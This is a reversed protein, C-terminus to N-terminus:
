KSMSKEFMRDIKTYCKGVSHLASNATDQAKYAITIANDATSIAIDASRNADRSTSLAMHALSQAEGLSVKLADIEVTNACATLLSLPFIVTGLKTFLKM